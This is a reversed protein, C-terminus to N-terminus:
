HCILGADLIYIKFVMVLVVLAPMRAKNNHRANAASVRFNNLGGFATGLEAGLSTNEASRAMCCRFTMALSGCLKPVTALSFTM